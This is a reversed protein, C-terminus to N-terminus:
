LENEYRKISEKNNKKNNEISKAREKKRKSKISNKASAIESIERICKEFYEDQHHDDLELEDFLDEFFMNDYSSYHDKIKPSSGMTIVPGSM